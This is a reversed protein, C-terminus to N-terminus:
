LRPSTLNVMWDFSAYATWMQTETTMRAVVVLVPVIAGGNPAHVLLRSLFLLTHVICGLEYVANQLTILLLALSVHHPVGPLEGADCRPFLDVVKACM